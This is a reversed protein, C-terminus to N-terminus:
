EDHHISHIIRRPQSQTVETAVSSFVKPAPRHSFAFAGIHHQWWSQALTATWAGADQCARLAELVHAMSAPRQAPDRAICRLVLAELDAPLPTALHESPAIPDENVQKLLVAMASPGQFAARGTVLAYAVAGLAYIDTLANAHEAGKIMEPAMFGPSGQIQGEGTLQVDEDDDVDKVLGFDLVKITDYRGGRQCMFINGPKIDRHILGIDHAEQLSECIQDLLYIARAPGVPGHHNIFDLLTAGELYEMAYYFVGEPTCGYDYIAITNPHTLKCTLQVEREFRKIAAPTNLDAKLLKIATPRRLMAHNARFVDGMGGSGIREALTYQGLQQAVEVARDIRRGFARATFLAMAVAALIALVTIAFLINRQSRVAGLYDSNPVMVGIALTAPALEFARFGGWWAGGQARFKFPALARGNTKWLGFATELEAIDLEGVPRLVNDRIGQDSAFRPQRPLGLVQGDETLISVHGNTSSSLETTFGSVDLLLVDFAVVYQEGDEENEFRLSATIGPEQTTFFTYPATWFITNAPSGMAGIYWPRERPDYPLEKTWLELLTGNRDWRRWYTLNGNAQRDVLRNVWDDGQRLLLYDQGHSNAFLMSSIQPHHELIPIMRRNLAQSDNLDLQNQRGWDMTVVLNTRIPEFFRNLETETRDTSSAIAQESLEAVAQYAGYLFVTAIAAATLLTLLVLNRILSRRFLTDRDQLAQHGSNNTSQVPVAM